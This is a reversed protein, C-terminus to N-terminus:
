VGESQNLVLTDSPGCLFSAVKHLQNRNCVFRITISNLDHSMFKVGYGAVDVPVVDSGREVSRTDQTPMLGMTMGFLQDRVCYLPSRMDVGTLQYIDAHLDQLRACLVDVEENLCSM